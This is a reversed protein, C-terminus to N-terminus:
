GSVYREGMYYIRTYGFVYGVSVMLAVEHDEKNKINLSPTITKSLLM